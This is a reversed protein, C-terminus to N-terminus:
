QLLKLERVVAACREAYDPMDQPIIPGMRDGGGDDLEVTIRKGYDAKGCLREILFKSAVVNGERSQRLLDCFVQWVVDHVDLGEREARETVIKRFDIGRPRGPSIPRHGPKWRGDKERETM